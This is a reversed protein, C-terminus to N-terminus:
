SNQFKPFFMEDMENYGGCDGGGNECCEQFSLVHFTMLIRQNAWTAM